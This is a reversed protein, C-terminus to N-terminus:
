GSFTPVVAVREFEKEDERHQTVQLVERSSAVRDMLSAGGSSDYTTSVRRGRREQVTLMVYPPFLVEREGEFQSLFAVEAGAGLLPPLFHLLM